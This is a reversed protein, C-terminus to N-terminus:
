LRVEFMTLWLYKSSAPASQKAEEIEEGYLPSQKKKQRASIVAVAEDLLDVKADGGPKPRDM